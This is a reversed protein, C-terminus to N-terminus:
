YKLCYFAMKAAENFFEILGHESQWWTAINYRKPNIPTVLVSIGSTKLTRQFIWQARRTHFADTPIIVQSVKRTKCWDAFQGAEELTSTANGTLIEISTEPVGKTLLVRYNVEHSPPTINLIETPLPEPRAVLVLPAYGQHFLDAAKAPRTQEGGGLVIIAESPALPSNIVWLHVLGTLIVSKLLWACIIAATFLLLATLIRRPTIRLLTTNM